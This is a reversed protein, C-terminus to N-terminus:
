CLELAISVVTDHLAEKNFSNLVHQKKPPKKREPEANVIFCDINKYPCHILPSRTIHVLDNTPRHVSLFILAQIPM